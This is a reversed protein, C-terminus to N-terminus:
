DREVTNFEQIIEEEDYNGHERSDDEQDVDVSNHGSLILDNDPGSKSVKQHGGEAIQDSDVKDVQDYIEKATFFHGEVRGVQFNNLSGFSGTFSYSMDQHLHLKGPLCCPKICAFEVTHPNRNILEVARLSLTGCLHVGLLIVRNFKKVKPKPPGPCHSLTLESETTLESRTKVTRDNTHANGM